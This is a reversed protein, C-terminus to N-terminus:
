KPSFIRHITYKVNGSRDPKEIYITASVDFACLVEGNTKMLQVEDGSILIERKDANNFFDEFNEGSIEIKGEGPRPEFILHLRQQALNSNLIADDPLPFYKDLLYFFAGRSPDAEMSTTATLADKFSFSTDTNQADFLHIRYQAQNQNRVYETNGYKKLDLASITGIEENPLSELLPHNHSEKRRLAINETTIQGESSEENVTKGSHQEGERGPGVVDNDESDDVLFGDPGISQEMMRNEKADKYKYYLYALGVIAFAIGLGLAIYPAFIALIGIAASILLVALIKKGWSSWTIERGNLSPAPENQSSSLQELAVNSVDSDRLSCQSLASGSRPRGPQESDQLEDYPGGNHVTNM